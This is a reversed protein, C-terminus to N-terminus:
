AVATELFVQRSRSESYYVALAPLACCTVLQYGLMSLFCTSPAFSSFAAGCIDTNVSASMALMVILTPLHFRLRAKAGFSLMAVQALSSSELLATVTTYSPLYIIGVGPLATVMMQALKHVLLSLVCLWERHQVYATTRRTAVFLYACNFLMLLTMVAGLVVSQSLNWRSIWAAQSCIAICQFAIDVPVQGRHYYTAYKSELEPSAFALLPSTISDRSLAEERLAAKAMAVDDNVEQSPLREMSLGGKTHMARRRGDIAAAAAASSSTSPSLTGRGNISDRRSSFNNGLGGKCSQNMSQAHHVEAIVREIDAGTGFRIALALPTSGDEARAGEWGSIADPCVTTLLAAILGGDRVLAALHLATLAGRLGPTCSNFEHGVSQGWKLLMAVMESSQTRVALQLLPMGTTGAAIIDVNAMAASPSTNDLVCASLATRTLSPWKRQVLFPLLRRAAKAPSVPGKALAAAAATISANGGGSSSCTAELLSGLEYLLTDVEGVDQTSELTSVEGAVEPSPAVLVTRGATAYSGRMLEVQLSGPHFSGAVRVDLRQLTGWEPREEAAGVIEADLYRGQSRAIVTTGEGELNYGWVSLSISGGRRAPPVVALPRVAAVSPLLQAAGATDVVHILKGDRVLAMKDGLQLVITHAAAAAASSALFREVAAHMGGEVVAGHGEAGLMANVEVHVCGPQMYGEMGDVALMEQMSAKLDAPLDAPTCGFLKASLRVLREDVAYHVQAQDYALMNLAEELVSSADSSNSSRVPVGGGGNYNTTTNHQMYPPLGSIGTTITRPATARHVNPQTLTVSYNNPNPAAAPTSTLFPFSAAQQAAASPTMMPMTAAGGTTNNNNYFPSPDHHGHTGGAAAGLAAAAALVADNPNLGFERTLEELVAMDDLDMVSSPNIGMFSSVSAHGRHMDAPHSMPHSNIGQAAAAAAAGSFGLPGLVDDLFSDGLLELDAQTVGPLGPVPMSGAFHGSSNGSQNSLSQGSNSTSPANSNNSLRMQKQLKQIKPALEEETMGYKSRLAAEDIRGTTRLMHAMERQRRRRTNHKDLRARCSRKEGDFEDIGQFKGCQQCFRQPRGDKTVVHAKLHSECIKYRSHYERMKSVDVACDDVQSTVFLTCTLNIPM